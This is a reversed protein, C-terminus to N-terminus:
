LFFPNPLLKETNQNMLIGMNDNTKEYTVPCLDGQLMHNQAALANPSYIGSFVAPISIPSPAAIGVFFSLPINVAHLIDKTPAM